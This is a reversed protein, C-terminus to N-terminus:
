KNNLIKEWSSELSKSYRKLVAVLLTVSKAFSLSTKDDTINPFFAKRICFSSHNSFAHFLIPWVLSGQPVVLIIDKFDSSVHSMRICQQRNKLYTYNHKLANGNFRYTSLKPILLERPICDVAKPLDM